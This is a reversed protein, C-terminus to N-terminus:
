SPFISNASYVLVGSSQNRRVNLGMWVDGIVIAHINLVVGRRLRGVDEIIGTETTLLCGELFAAKTTRELGM